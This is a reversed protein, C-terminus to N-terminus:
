SSHALPFRDCLSFSLISFSPAIFLIWPARFDREKIIFTWRPRLQKSIVKKKAVVLTVKMYTIVDTDQVWHKLAAPQGETLRMGMAQPLM